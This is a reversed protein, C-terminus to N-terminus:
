RGSERGARRARGRAPHPHLALRHLGRRRHGPGTMAAEDDSGSV